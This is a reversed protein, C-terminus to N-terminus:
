CKTIILHFLSIQFWLKVLLFYFTFLLFGFTDFIEKGKRRKMM